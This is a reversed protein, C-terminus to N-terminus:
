PHMVSEPMQRIRLEPPWYSMDAGHSDGPQRHAAGLQKVFVAVLEKGFAECQNVLSTAWELKMRRAGPGSEGGVIVWQIGLNELYRGLWVPGILPECSLFRTRAPIRLLAPVRKDAWEQNEVSTGLWVNAPWEGWRWPTLVPAIDPRKTLLQWNLWPTEAILAWLKERWPDLDERPEFVDAMSACFVRHRRGESEAERNWRLPEAWYKEGFFRRPAKAGWVDNGYRAALKEAYCHVCGPSVHACGWWPNFTHDTWQIGTTAGM